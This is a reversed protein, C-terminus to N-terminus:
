GIDFVSFHFFEDQQGQHGYHRQTSVSLHLANGNLGISREFTLLANVTEFIIDREELAHFIVCVIGVRCFDRDVVIGLLGSRVLQTLL